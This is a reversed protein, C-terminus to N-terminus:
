DRSENNNWFRYIFGGSKLDNVDSLNYDIM